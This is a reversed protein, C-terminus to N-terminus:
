IPSYQWFRLNYLNWHPSNYFLSILMNIISSAILEGSPKVTELTHKMYCTNAIQWNLESTRFDTTGLDFISVFCCCYLCTGCYHLFFCCSLCTGCYHEVCCCYLCTGCYHEFCYCYLCTGCLAWFLSLVFVCWFLAWFLLLVFVYWLLAWFFLLVFVYWLLAWFLLLVFVYWLTNLVVVTCVRVFITSLVLPTQLYWLLLWFGYISCYCVVYHGFSFPCFSLYRDVFYACSVLSRTVRVGSLVLPSSSTGKFPLCKRSWQHLWSHPFSRSTSVVLPVCCSYLCISQIVLNTDWLFFDGSCHESMQYSPLFTNNENLLDM